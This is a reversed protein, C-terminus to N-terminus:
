NLYAVDKVKIGDRVEMGDKEAIASVIIRNEMMGLDQKRKSDPSITGHFTVHEFGAKTLIKELSSNTYLREAYFQDVIVGKDVQTIVERSILRENDKALSRERCVFYKNDIWEWSRPSFHEKMFSGDSVDILFAGGPKLVRFVEELIKCDEDASDFYGFSNGLIMVSDFFASPYPLKRADGEKFIATLGEDLNIKKAKKILYNSRDLGYINKFGQRALELSHRGQGCALDLIYSVQKFGLIRKFLEVEKTTISNDDVVDADTKLYMSNFIKKWWDPQLHTELDSVPGIFDEKHRVKKRGKGPKVKKKM